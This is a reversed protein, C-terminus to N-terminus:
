RGYGPHIMEGLWDGLLTRSVNPLATLKKIDKQQEDGLFVTAAEQAREAFSRLYEPNLDLTRAVKESVPEHYEAIVQLTSFKLLMKTRACLVYPEGEDFPNKAQPLLFISIYQREKGFPEERERLSAYPVHHAPIWTWGGGCEALATILTGRKGQYLALAVRVSENDGRRDPPRVDKFGAALLKQDQAIVFHLKPKARNALVEDGSELTIMGRLPPQTLSLRYFVTGVVVLILFIFLLKM